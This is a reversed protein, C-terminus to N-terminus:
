EVYHSNPLLEYDYNIIQGARHDFGLREEASCAALVSSDPM